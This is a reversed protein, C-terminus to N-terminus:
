RRKKGLMAGAAGILALMAPAMVSVDGTKPTALCNYGGVRFTTRYNQCPVCNSYRTCVDGCGWHGCPACPRDCYWPDNYCGLKKTCMHVNSYTGGDEFKVTAAYVVCLWKANGRWYTYRDKVSGEAEASANPHLTCGSKATCKRVVRLVHKGDCGNCEWKCDYEYKPDHQETEVKYGCVCKGTDPNITHNENQSSIVKGCGDLDHEKSCVIKHTHQKDDLPEYTHLQKEPGHDCEPNLNEPEQKGPNQEGSNQEGSNKEEDNKPEELKEPQKAIPEQEATQETVPQEAGCVCKGDNFTHQVSVDKVVGCNCIVKHTGNKNDEYRVPENEHTCAVSENDSVPEEPTGAAGGEALAPVAALLMVLALMIAFIRKKM